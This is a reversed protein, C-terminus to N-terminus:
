DEHKLELLTVSEVHGTQPFLDVPQIEKINYYLSLLELDRALTIPNCSVYVIRNVKLDNLFDILKKNCGKRPPDLIICDPKIHLESVIDEAKGSYFQANNINNLHANIKADAVADSNIEIGVLNIKDNALYLGITGTGCYLDLVTEGDKLDAFKKVTDYLVEAQPTNVQFFSSPSIKFKKTGLTEILDKDKYVDKTVKGLVTNKKEKNINLSIGITNPLKEKITNIISSLNKITDGNIIFTITIEEEQNSRLLIGRLLGKHTKEDYLSIKYNKIINNLVSIIKHYDGYQLNCNDIPILEHTGKKYLGIGNTDVKFQAKNRYHSPNSGIIPLINLNALNKYKRFANRIENEKIQLQAQYNMRSFSCGGCIDAYKCFTTKNELPSNEIVKLVEAKAYNPKIQVIKALVEEQPITNDIFITFNDVKAIGEGTNTIDIVKLQYDNNLKVPIDKKNM